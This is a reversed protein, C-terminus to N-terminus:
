DKRYNQSHSEYKTEQFEQGRPVKRTAERDNKESRSVFKAPCIRNKPQLVAKGPRRSRWLCGPVTEPQLLQLDDSPDVERLFLPSTM